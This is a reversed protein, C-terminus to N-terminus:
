SQLTDFLLCEAFVFAKGLARDCASPLAGAKGLTLCFASPLAQAKASHVSQRTGLYFYEAFTIKKTKRQKRAYILCLM